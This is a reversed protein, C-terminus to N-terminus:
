PSIIIQCLSICYKFIHWDLLWYLCKRNLYIQVCVQLNQGDDGWPFWLSIDWSWPLAHSCKLLCCSSRWYQHTGVSWGSLSWPILYFSIWKSLSFDIDREYTNINHKAFFVIFHSNQTITTSVKIKTINVKSALFFQDALLFVWMIQFNLPSQFHMTYLPLDMPTSTFM